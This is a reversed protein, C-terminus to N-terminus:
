FQFDYLITIEIKINSSKTVLNYEICDAEFHIFEETKKSTYNVFVTIICHPTWIFVSIIDFKYEPKKTDIISAYTIAICEES